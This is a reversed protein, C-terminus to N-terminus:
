DNDFEHMVKHIYDMCPKYVEKHYIDHNYLNVSEYSVTNRLLLVYGNMQCTPDRSIEMSICPIPVFIIRSSCENPLLEIETLGSVTVYPNYVQGGGTFTFTIKVRM